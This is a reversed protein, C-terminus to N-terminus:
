FVNPKIEINLIEQTQDSKLCLFDSLYEKTNDPADPIAVHRFLWEKLGIDNYNDLELGLKNPTGYDVINLYSQYGLLRAFDHNIYRIHIEVQSKCKKRLMYQLQTLALSPFNLSAFPMSLFEIKLM